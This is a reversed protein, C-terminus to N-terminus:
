WDYDSHWPVLSIGSQHTPVLKINSATRRRWPLRADSVFGLEHERKAPWEPTQRRREEAERHATYQPDIPLIIASTQTMASKKADFRGLVM